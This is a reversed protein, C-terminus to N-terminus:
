PAWGRRSAFVDHLQTHAFVEGQRHRVTFGRSRLLECVTQLRDEVDHVEVVLQEVRDWDAPQVSELVDLEAKEVDVKLLGIREVDAERFVESLTRIRCEFTQHGLGRTALVELGSPPLDPFRSRLLRVLLDKDERPDAFQGSLASNSPYFTFSANDDHRGAGYPLASGRIRHLAFNATLVSFTPPLPELAIVRVDDAERSAQLAFLGINAGVDVVTDGAAIAIGQQLYSRREFIDAYLLLAENRNLCYFDDGTPLRLREM